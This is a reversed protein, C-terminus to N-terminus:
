PGFALSDAVEIKQNAGGSQVETEHKQGVVPALELPDLIKLHDGDSSKKLRGM